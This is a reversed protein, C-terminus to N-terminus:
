FILGDVAVAAGQFAPVLSLIFVARCANQSERLLIGPLRNLKVVLGGGGVIGWSFVAGYSGGQQFVILPSVM